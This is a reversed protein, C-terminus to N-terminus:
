LSCADDSHMKCLLGAGEELLCEPSDRITRHVQVLNELNGSNKSKTWTRFGSGSEATDGEGM